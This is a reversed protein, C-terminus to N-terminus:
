SLATLFVNPAAVTPVSPRRVFHGFDHWVESKVHYKPRWSYRRWFLKTPFNTSTLTLGWGQGTWLVLNLDFREVNARYAARFHTQHPYLLESVACFRSNSEKKKSDNARSNQSLGSSHSGATSLVANHQGHASQM